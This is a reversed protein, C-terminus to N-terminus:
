PKVLEDILDKKFQYLEDLQGRKVCYQTLVNAVRMAGVRERINDIQNVFILLTGFPITVLREKEGVLKEMGEFMKLEKNAKEGLALIFEERTLDM